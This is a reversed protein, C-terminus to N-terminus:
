LQSFEQFFLFFDKENYKKMFFYQAGPKMKKQSEEIALTRLCELTLRKEAMCHSSVQERKAFPVWTVNFYNEGLPRIKLNILENPTLENAKDMPLLLWCPKECTRIEEASATEANALVHVPQRFIKEYEAKLLEFIKQSEPSLPLFGWLVYHANQFEPSLRFVVGEAINQRDPSIVSAAILPASRLSVGVKVLYLMCASILIFALCLLITIKKM